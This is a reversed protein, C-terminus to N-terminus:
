PQSGTSDTSDRRRLTSDTSLCPQMDRPPLGAQVGLSYDPPKRQGVGVGGSRKFQAPFSAEPYVKEPAKPGPPPWAFVLQPDSKKLKAKRLTGSPCPRPLLFLKSFFHFPWRRPRFSSPRCPGGPASSSGRSPGGPAGSLPRQVPRRGGAFTCRSFDAFIQM